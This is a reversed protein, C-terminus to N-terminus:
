SDISYGSRRDDEDDHRGAEKKLELDLRSYPTPGLPYPESNHSFGLTRIGGEVGDRFELSGPKV